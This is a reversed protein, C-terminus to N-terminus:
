VLQKTIDYGNQRNHYEHELRCRRGVDADRASIELMIIADM